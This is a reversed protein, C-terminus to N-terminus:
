EELLGGYLEQYLTVFALASMMRVHDVNHEIVRDCVPPVRDFQTTSTNLTLEANIWSLALRRLLTSTVFVGGRKVIWNNGDHSLTYDM